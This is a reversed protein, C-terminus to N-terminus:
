PAPELDSTAEIRWYRRNGIHAKARPAQPIPRVWAFRMTPDQEAQRQQLQREGQVFESM